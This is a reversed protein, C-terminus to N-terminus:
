GRRALMARFRENQRERPVLVCNSCYDTARESRWWLCCGARRAFLGRKGQYEFVELIAERYVPSMPDSFFSNAEQVITAADDVATYLRNFAQACSAGVANKSVRISARATRRLAAIVPTINSDFLWEKLLAYLAAKDAVVQADQHSAAADSPLVAFSPHNLATAVIREGDRHLALNDLTVKPVRRELVYQAIVPWIIRTLYAIIFASGAVHPNDTGWRDRGHAMVLDRLREDDGEFLSPANLWGDEGIDHVPLDFYTSLTRARLMSDILPHVASNM